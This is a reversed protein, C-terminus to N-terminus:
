NRGSDAVRDRDTSNRSEITSPITFGVRSGATDSEIDFQVAGGYCLQLRREVSRLGHGQGPSAQVGFGPGNDAVEVRLDGAQAHATIRVEGGKALHSVGHKIANEVLPQISLAPVRTSRVEDDVDIHTTLRDALRLREIQLYAEVVELEDALVVQHQKSNLSYRFIDALNLLTTRAAAAGAPILGNLANLANFLFHPNIQARLTAIEADRLLKDQEERRLTEVRRAAAANLIDLDALDVSLYRRGGERPGLLLLHEAGAGTLLPVVAESWDHGLTHLADLSPAPATESGTLDLGHNGPILKWPEASVFEAMKKAAERLLVDDNEADLAGIAASASQLNKRGFIRNEAWVGLRRVIAPYALILLGSIVLCATLEVATDAAVRVLGLMDAVWLIAGAFAAALVVAGALRVFVDLLLFRYDQVLVFLAVPIGAHHFVLEHLVASPEHTRGFHVFSLALLCLAMAALTRMGSSTPGSEGRALLVAGGVSLCGFGYNMWAIGTGMNALPRGAAITFHILAAGIGVVYGAAALWRYEAGLALHLLTSPLLSLFGLSVAAVAAQFQSDSQAVLVTLSGLNWCLALAAAAAPLGIHRRPSRALLILFAGFATIGITHGLMHLLIPFHIASQM